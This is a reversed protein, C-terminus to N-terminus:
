PAHRAAHDLLRLMDSKSTNKDNNYEVITGMGKRFNHEASWGKPIHPLVLEELTNFMKDQMAGGNPNVVALFAGLVCHAVAAPDGPDVGRGFANVALVHKAYGKALIARAALLTEKPSLTMHAEEDM